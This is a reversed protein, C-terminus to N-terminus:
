DAALLRLVARELTVRGKPSLPEGSLIRVHDVKSLTGFLRGSTALTVGAAHKDIVVPDVYSRRAVAPTNGLQAAVLNVVEREARKTATKSNHEQRTSLEALAGAATVTAAWTRLDKVTFDEGTLTKFAENVEAASVGHWGTADRYQLLHEGPARSRRLASIAVALAPDAVSAEREVGSKAPFLFDVTDGHVTVHDRLLTTVGYSGHTQEYEEGGTRFLGLDLMRLAVAIVRDRTLGRRRLDRNVAARFEPLRPVMQRVREHKARDRTERWSPHYLYQRRGADDTGVAQIHGNPYPCIWVDSWAPPIVLATIRERTAADVAGGHDDRYAFGRGRRTRRFGAGSLDSRRLRM